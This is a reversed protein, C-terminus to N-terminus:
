LVFPRPARGLVYFDLNASIRAVGGRWRYCDDAFTVMGGGGGFWTGNSTGAAAIGYIDPPTLHGTEQANQAAQGMSERFFLLAAGAM